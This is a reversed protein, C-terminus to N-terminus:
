QSEFLKAVSGGAANARNAFFQLKQSINKQLVNKFEVSCAFSMLFLLKLYQFNSYVHRYIKIFTGAAHILLLHGTTPDRVLQLGGQLGVGMQPFGVPEMPM